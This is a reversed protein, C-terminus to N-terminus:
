SLRAVIVPRRTPVASGGSREATVLVSTVGHLDGPVEVTTTGASGVDFLASTPSPAQSGRKLWVEYIRGAPPQPMRRVILQSTRSGVRLVASTSPWAVSAQISRSSSGGPILTLLAVALVAAFALGAAGFAPHPLWAPAGIRSRRRPASRRAMRPEAKVEGMVRRRLEVPPAVQPASLALSDAVAQFAVVEDRCVVCTELHTRFSRAEHDDLAGLTYAAADDNCERHETMRAMTM